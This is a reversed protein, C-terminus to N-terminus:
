LDYEDINDNFQQFVKAVVGNLADSKIQGDKVIKSETIFKEFDNKTPFYRKIARTVKKGREFM